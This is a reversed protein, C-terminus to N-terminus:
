VPGQRREGNRLRKLVRQHRPEVAQRRDLLGGLDARGDPALEGIGQHVRYDSAVLGCQLMGQGLELLGPEHEATALRWFGNVGERWRQPTMRGILAQELAAPM